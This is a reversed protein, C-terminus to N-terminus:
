FTFNVSATFSRPIPTDAFDVGRSVTSAAFLNVEPDLGRYSTWTHLNRAALRVDMTQAGFHRAFAEDFHIALAIERLKVFAGNEIYEEYILSRGAPNLSFTRPITDGTIEREVDKDVGFLETIRRTFNAVKNGFRGDLLVSLELRRGLQFSNSLSAILSPNPDGIVKRAPVIAGTPLTDLARVPLMLTYPKGQMTVNVPAYAISGDPNRAYYGGFFVGIPQGQIVANLYDFVLTDTPTVLKDVRNRDHALSLRSRWTFGPKDVNVTTLAAEWGHDSLVGVNQLESSQGTSPPLPVSLVLDSTRRHYYTLEALARDQFLGLDM